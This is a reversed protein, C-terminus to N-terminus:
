MGQSREVVARSNGRNSGGGKLRLGQPSPAVIDVGQSAWVTVMKPESALIHCQMLTACSQCRLPHPQGRGEIPPMWKCHLRHTSAWKGAMGSHGDARGGSPIRRHPSASASRGRERCRPMGLPTNRPLLGRGPRSGTGVTVHKRLPPPPTEQKVQSRLELDQMSVHKAAHIMSTHEKDTWDTYALIYTSSTAREGVCFTMSVSKMWVKQSLRRPGNKPGQCAKREKKHVAHEAPQASTSEFLM